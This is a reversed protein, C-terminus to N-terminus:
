ESAWVWPKPSRLYFIGLGVKHRCSIIYYVEQHLALCLHFIEEAKQSPTKFDLSVQYEKLLYSLSAELEFNYQRLLRLGAAM